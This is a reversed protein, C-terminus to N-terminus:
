ATGNGEADITTVAAGDVGEVRIAKGLLDIQELYTGPSVLVQDGDVAADIAAQITPFDDPVHIDAATVGTTVTAAAVVAILSRGTTM